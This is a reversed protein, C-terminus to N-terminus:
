PALADVPVINVIFHSMSEKATYLNLYIKASLIFDSLVASLIKCSM